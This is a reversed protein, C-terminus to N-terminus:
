QPLDKIFASVTKRLQEDVSVLPSWGLLEQTKSIDIQLSGCLRQALAKKGIIKLVFELLSQPVPVLWAKRGMALATRQLLETTSLDEGDSILFVQNAAAPHETCTMILDALNDLAVLSRRNQIAGFPLPVGKNLWRMMTLFNGKVGPGYVLPPRIVVVEMESKKSLSFLQQEAELKSLGYLDEPSPTDEVRFLQGPTTQEGNVKISSIFIFRRVGAEAAQKALNLTGYVNVRRIEESFDADNEIMRHVRAAAHIVVSVGELVDKWDTEFNFDGKPVASVGAPLTLKQSRVTTIVAKGLLSVRRLVAGGIFGTGGTVLYKESM